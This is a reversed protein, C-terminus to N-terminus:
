LLLVIIRYYQNTINKITSALHKDIEDENLTNLVRTVLVTKNEAKAFLDSEITKFRRYHNKTVDLIGKEMCFKEIFIQQSKKAM